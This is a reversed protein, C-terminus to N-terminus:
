SLLIANKMWALVSPRQGHMLVGARYVRAAVFATGFLALLMLGVALALHWWPVGYVLLAPLVIPSTFPIISGWFAVTSDPSQAAATLIVVGLIIPVSVPLMLGQAESDDGAAAGLAAFIAGYFFYGAFFFFLSGLVVTLWEIQGFAMMAAEVAPMMEATDPAAAGGSTAELASLGLIPILAIQIGLILVAWIALQTLAVLGIGVIKGTMLAVPRVTVLMVEIIRNQKEEVVGRLIMSGFIFVAMYVLMGIMLGVVSAIDSFAGTGREGDPRRVDVEIDTRLAQYAQADIGLDDVRRAEVRDSLRDEIFAIAHSPLADESILRIPVRQPATISFNAPIKLLADYVATDSAAFTQHFRVLGDPHDALPADLLAAEDDIHVSYTSDDSSALAATGVLLAVIGVPLLLTVLWFSRKRVRTAYERWIILGVTSM